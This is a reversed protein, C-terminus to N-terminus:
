PFALVKGSPVPKLPPDFLPATLKWTDRHPQLYQQSRSLMCALDILQDNGAMIKDSGGDAGDGDRELLVFSGDVHERGGKYAM